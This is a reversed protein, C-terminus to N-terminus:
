GTPLVIADPDALHGGFEKGFLVEARRVPQGLSM